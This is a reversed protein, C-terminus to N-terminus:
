GAEGNRNGNALARWFRCLEGRDINKGAEVCAVVNVSVHSTPRVHKPNKLKPRDVNFKEADALALRKEDLFGVIVYTRGADKGRKSVVVQGVRYEDLPKGM